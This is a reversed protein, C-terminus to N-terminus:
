HTSSLTSYNSSSPSTDNLSTPTTSRTTEDSLSHPTPTTTTTEAVGDGSDSSSVLEEHETGKTHSKPSEIDEENLELYELQTTLETLEPTSLLIQQQHFHKMFESRLQLNLRLMKLINRKKEQRTKPCCLIRLFERIVLQRSMEADRLHSRHM